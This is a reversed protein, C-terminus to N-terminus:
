LGCAASGGQEFTSKACYAGRPAFDKMVDSARAGPAVRTAAEAFSPNPLMHRLLLLAPVDTAGWDLWTSPATAPTDMPRDAPTSIVYTYFGDADLKTEDDAACATVPYPKRLENTCMSWFRVQENGTVAAGHRTDPFTPARGRVVVIRGPEYVTTTAVYVSDLNPYLNVSAQQPRIFIPTPPPPQVPRDYNNAIDLAAQSPGPAACTPILTSAGSAAILRVDPLGAGGTPDSRDDPLYVRYLVTGTVAGDGGRGLLMRGSTDPTSSSSPSAADPSPEAAVRNRDGTSPVGTDIAITYRGAAAAPSSVATLASAFPNTSAPDPAIDRDTISDVVGGTLGYTVFSFYRAAPYRGSLELHEGAALAYSLAWYTAATDPYAINLTAKDARVNWACVASAGSSATSAVEPAVDDGGCGLTLLGAVAFACLGRM